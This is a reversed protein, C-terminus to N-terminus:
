SLIDDEESDNSDFESQIISYVNYFKYHDMAM